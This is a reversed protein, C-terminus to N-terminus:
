RNQKNNEFCCWYHNVYEELKVRSNYYSVANQILPIFLLFNVTASLPWKIRYVPLLLIKNTLNILVRPKGILYILFMLLLVPFLYTYLIHYVTM